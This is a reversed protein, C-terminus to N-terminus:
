GDNREATQEAVPLAAQGARQGTREGLPEAAGFNIAHFNAADLWRAYLAAHNHLRHGAYWARGARSCNALSDAPIALATRPSLLQVGDRLGDFEERFSQGLLPIVGHATYAAFVGSKALCNPSYALGGFATRTLQRDLEAATREGACRVPIGNVARPTECAPGIDVIERVGLRTLLSGMRALAPYVRQRTGALGFVALVQEREAFPVLERAEGVPSFVPLCEVPSDTQTRLWDAFVRASTVALECTQAIRRHVRKQRRALWFASKWPMGGAHLEHFCVAIRFGGGAKMRELADALQGPAGDASYGYGSLHVLIAAPRGESSAACAEPLREPACQVVPFSPNWPAEENPVVFASGIGFGTRLEAALAIAHDSVGCRAPALRPVVQIWQRNGAMM